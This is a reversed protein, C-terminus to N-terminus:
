RGVSATFSCSRLARGQDLYHIRTGDVEMFRGLPPLAREVRFATWATFLVLAGVILATAALVSILFASM